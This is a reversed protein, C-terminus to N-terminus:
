TRSGGFAPGTLNVGNVVPPPSQQTTNGYLVEAVDGVQDPTITQKEASAGQSGNSLKSPPNNSLVALEKELAELGSEAEDLLLEHPNFAEETLREITAERAIISDARAEIKDHQRKAVAGAAALKDSLRGM